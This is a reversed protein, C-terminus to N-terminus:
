GKLNNLISVDTSRIRRYIMVIIALGVAVEAAAIAMIFFVFVQGSVDSKYSSFTIFLLNVANLMLEISMFVIIANRRTLVGVIGIFFLAVALMVFNNVPVAKFVEPIPNM